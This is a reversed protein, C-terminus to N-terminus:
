ILRRFFWTSDEDLELEANPYDTAMFTEVAEQVGWVEPRKGWDHGGIWGGRKVKAHWAVLDETVGGFTHDADIFVFDLVENPLQYAVIRSEGQIVRARHVGNAFFVRAQAKRMAVILERKSKRAVISGSKGYRSDPKVPAWRDVMYLTLLPAMHLLWSSLKGDWVGIEAGVLTGGASVRRLIAQGRQAVGM